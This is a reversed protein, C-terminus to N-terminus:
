NNILNVNPFFSQVYKPTTQRKDILLDFSEFGNRANRISIYSFKPNQHTQVVKKLDFVFQILITELVIGKQLRTLCFGRTVVLM